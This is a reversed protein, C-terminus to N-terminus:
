LMGERIMQSVRGSNISVNGYERILMGDISPGNWIIQNRNGDIIFHYYSGINSKMMGYIMLGSGIWDVHCNLIQYISPKNNDAIDTAYGTGDTINIAWMMSSKDISQDGKLSEYDILIRCETKMAVVMVSDSGNDIIKERVERLTFSFACSSTLLLMIFVHKM